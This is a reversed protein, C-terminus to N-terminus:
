QRSVHAEDAAAVFEDRAEEATLRGELAAKCANRARIYRSGSRDPWMDTLCILADVPGNVVRNGGLGFGLEVPQQWQESKMM